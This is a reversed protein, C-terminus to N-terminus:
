LDNKGGCIPCKENRKVENYIIKLNNFLLEGRGLSDITEELFYNLIRILGYSVSFLSMSALGGVEFFHNSDDEHLINYKPTWGKLKNSYHNVYCDVCPTKNPIILEGTSMLHADFGGGIYLPLNDIYCKRGIKMSTFGIYPEDLTNIVFDIPNNFYKDLDSDYILIDKYVKCSIDSNIKKLYKSLVDVKFDGISESSYYYHRSIDSEKLIGKDIFVFKKVGMMALNIAFGSGIAGTGFILFTSESLKKQNLIKDQSFYEDFFILQRDFRRFENSDEINNENEIFIIKKELLYRMFNELNTNYEMGLELLIEKLNRKGDLM